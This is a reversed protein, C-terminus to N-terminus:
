LVASCIENELTGTTPPSIAVHICITHLIRATPDSAALLKTTNTGVMTRCRESCNYETASFEVELFRKRAGSDRNRVRALDFGNDAKARRATLGRSFM